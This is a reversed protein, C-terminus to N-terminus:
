RDLIARCVPVLARGLAETAPLDLHTGDVPSAACVTAADFFDAGFRAALAKYKGAIRQSEAIRGPTHRDGCPVQPPPAVVLVAPTECRPKDFAFTQVIRVLRQMGKEAGDASGANAAKLDNTGLMLIVLDLPAQSALAVPLTKVANRCANGAHDDFCTSRGCLGDQVVEVDGLGAQLVTPWLSSKPHRGGDAPDHGWTLSDGYALVTPTTM